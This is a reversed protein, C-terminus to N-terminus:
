EMKNKLVSSIQEKIQDFSQAGMIRMIVEGKWFMMITPISAIQYKAAIHQKEDINVKVTIIRGSFEKAIQAIIPSVMRCPGCWAAWFDVLVPRDPIHILEDFSKPFIGSDSM